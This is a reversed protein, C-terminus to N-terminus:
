PDRALVLGNGSLVAMSRNLGLALGAPFSTAALTWREAGTEADLATVAGDIQLVLTGDPDVLADYDLNTQTPRRWLVEGTASVADIADFAHVLTTGSPAIVLPDGWTQEPDEQTDTQWLLAGDAGFAHLNTTYPPGKLLGVAIRLTGDTHVAPGQTFLGDMDRTWAVSGDAALEILRTTWTVGSGDPSWGTAVVVRDDPGALAIQSSCDGCGPVLAESEWVTAGDPGVKAVRDSDQFNSILGFLSGDVGVAFDGIQEKPLPNDSLEEGDRDLTLLFPAGQWSRVGLHGDADLFLASVVRDEFTKQWVVAGDPDVAVLTRPTVASM